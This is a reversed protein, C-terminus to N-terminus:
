RGGFIRFWGGRRPAASASVPATVGSAAVTGGSAYMPARGAEYSGVARFQPVASAALRGGGGGNALDAARVNAENVYPNHGAWRTQVLELVNLPCYLAEGSLGIWDSTYAQTEDIRGDLGYVVTYVYNILRPKEDQGNLSSGSNAALEVELKM